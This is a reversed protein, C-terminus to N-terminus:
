PVTINLDETERHDAVDTVKLTINYLGSSPIEKFQLRTKNNEKNIIFLDKDKGLISINVDFGNNLSSDTINLDTVILNQASLVELTNNLDQLIPQDVDDFLRLHLPESIKGTSDKLTLNFDHFSNTRIATDLKFEEYIGDINLSKNTEVGNLLIETEREGVLDIYTVDNAIAKLEYVLKPKCPPVTDVYTGNDRLFEEMHVRACIESVVERQPYQEKVIADLDNTNTTDSIILNTNISDTSIDFTNKPNLDADLSQLIRAINIAKQNTTDNRDVGALDTMFVLHYPDRQTKILNITGLIVKNNLSFQLTKCNRNIIFQGDIGTDGTKGSYTESSPNVCQYDVGNIYSNVLYGTTDNVNPTIEESLLISSFLCILTIIKKM